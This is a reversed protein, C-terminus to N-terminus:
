ALNLLKGLNRWVGPSITDHTPISLSPKGTATYIAHSGNTRDLTYGLEKKLTNTFVKTKCGKLKSYDKADM